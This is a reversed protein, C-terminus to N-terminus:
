LELPDRFMTFDPDVGVKKVGKYEENCALPWSM